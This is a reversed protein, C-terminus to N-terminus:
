SGRAGLLALVPRLKELPIQGPASEKGYVAFTVASGFLSGALRSIMGLSSMAMAIVPIKAASTNFALVAEMFRLVDQPREPMVALKALDAGAEQQANLIEIITEHAPTRQFDHYSLIVHVGNKKATQMLELRVREETRWELDVLDALGSELVAGIVAAREPLSIERCGGEQADRCTFILPLDGLVSRLEQLAALIARPDQATFYDARWEILDPTQEKIKRATGLLEPLNSALLPVCIKSSYTGLRCGRVVVERIKSM